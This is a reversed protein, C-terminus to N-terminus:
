VTQVESGKYLLVRQRRKSHCTHSPSSNLFSLRKRHSQTKSNVFCFSIFYSEHKAQYKESSETFCLGSSFLFLDDPSTFRNKSITQSEGSLVLSNGLELESQPIGSFLRSSLHHVPGIQRLAIKNRSRCAQTDECREKQPPNEYIKHM